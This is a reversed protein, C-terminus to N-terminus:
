PGETSATTTKEAIAGMPCCASQQKSGVPGAAARLHVHVVSAAHRAIKCRLSSAMTSTARRCRGALGDSPSRLGDYRGGSRDTSHRKPEPCHESGESAVRRRAIGLMMVGYTLRSSCM